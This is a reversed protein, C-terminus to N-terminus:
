LSVESIETTATFSIDSSISESTTEPPESTTEPPESTTEPPETDTITEPPESSEGGGTGGCRPQVGNIEDIIWPRGGIYEIRVPTGVRLLLMELEGAEETVVPQQGNGIFDETNWQENKSLVDELLKGDPETFMGDEDMGRKVQVTYNGRNPKGDLPVAVTIVANLRVAGGRAARRRRPVIRRDSELSEVFAIAHDMRRKYDASILFGSNGTARPM